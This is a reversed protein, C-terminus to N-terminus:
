FVQPPTWLLLKWRSVDSILLVLPCLSASPPEWPPEKLAPDKLERILEPWWEVTGWRALPMGRAIERRALARETAPETTDPTPPAILM